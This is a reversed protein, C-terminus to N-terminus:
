RKLRFGDPDISYKTLLKRLNKRDVRALRAAASINGKTITMLHRFYKEESRALAERRVESLTYVLDVPALPRSPQFHAGADTMMLWEQIKNELERVNGPWDYEMWQNLVEPSIEVATPRDGAYRRLFYRVLGPIDVKRERLPPVTLPIVKLRYYLDERFLRREVYSALDVNTAAVVHVDVGVYGSQGLPKYQREQLFRLLKMQVSLPISEVEDLFLTGGDAEQILGKFGGGADTYAGRAHGFLENEVLHEPITGCDVTIFPRGARPGLYHIARAILEKGTGTEGTILITSATEALRPLCNILERMSESRVVIHQQHMEKQLKEQVTHLRDFLAIRKGLEQITSRMVKADAPCRVIEDIAFQSSITAAISSDTGTLVIMSAEPNMRSLRDVFQGVPPKVSELDIVMLDPRSTTPATFTNEVETPSLVHCHITETSIREFPYDTSDRTTVIWVNSM